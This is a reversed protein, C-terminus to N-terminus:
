CQLSVASTSALLGRRARVSSRPPPSQRPAARDGPSRPTRPAREGDGLQSTEPLLPLYQSVVTPPLELSDRPGPSEEHEFRCSSHGDGAARGVDAMRGACLSPLGEPSPAASGTPAGCVLAAVAHNALLEICLVASATKERLRPSVGIQSVPCASPGRGRPDGAGRSVRTLTSLKLDYKPVSSAASTPGTCFRRTRGAARPVSGARDQAQAGAARAGSARRGRSLM